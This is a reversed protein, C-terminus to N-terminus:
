LCRIGSVIATLTLTTFVDFNIKEREREEGGCGRKLFHLGSCTVRHSPRPPELKQMNFACPYTKRYIFLTRFFHSVYNLPSTRTISLRSSSRFSFFEKDM